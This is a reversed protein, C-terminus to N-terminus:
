VTRLRDNPEDLAAAMVDRARPDNFGSLLVLAKFRVYGDAHNAAADLLAPVAQTAETRRVTRAAATRTVDDFKGLNNIAASLASTQPQATSSPPQTKPTVQSNPTPVQSNVGTAVVVLASLLVLAVRM